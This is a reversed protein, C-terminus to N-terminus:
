ADRYANGLALLLEGKVRARPTGLPWRRLAQELKVLGELQVVQRERDPAKKWVQYFRAFEAAKKGEAASATSQAAAQPAASMAAFTGMTACAIAARVVRMGFM